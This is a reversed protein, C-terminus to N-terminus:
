APFGIPLAPGPRSAVAARAGAEARMDYRLTTEARAHGLLTQVSHLDTGRAFHDTACTRRLDHPTFPPIGAESALKELKETWARWGLRHLGPKLTKKTDLRFFLPGPETGRLDVWARLMKRFTDAIWVYRDKRGKGRRIILTDTWKGGVALETVPDPLFDDMNLELIEGRRLGAGVTVMLMAADRLAVARGPKVALVRLMASIEEAALDRGERVNSGKVAGWNKARQYDDTSLMNLEWCAKLVGSLACLDKRATAPAGESLWARIALTDPRRLCEWPFTTADSKPLLKAAIKDLSYLMTSRSLKASLTAVYLLAPNARPEIVRAPTLIVPLNM